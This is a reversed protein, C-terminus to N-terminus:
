RSSRVAIRCPWCQPPPPTRLVSHVVVVRVSHNNNNTNDRIKQFEAVRSNTRTLAAASEATPSAVWLTLIIIFVTPGNIGLLGNDPFVAEAERVAKSGPQGEKGDGRWLAPTARRWCFARFGRTVAATAPSSHWRVRGATAITTTLLVSNVSAIWENLGGHLWVQCLTTALVTVPLVNPVPRTSVRYFFGNQVDIRCLFQVM